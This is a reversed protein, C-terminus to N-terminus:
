DFVEQLKFSVTYINDILRSGTSYSQEISLPGEFRTTIIGSENIHSLDFSFSEFTGSRANYFNEIATKEVGSIATYTLNYSRKSRRSKLRRKEYGAQSMFTTVDFTRESGIGRDPKRDVMSTFRDQTEVASDFVRISLSDGSYDSGLPAGSQVSIANSSTIPAHTDTRYRAVHAMRAFSVDGNFFEGATTTNSNAGVSVNGSTATAAVYGTHAVKVNNVYLRLNNTSADYSVAVHYNSGGNANGGYLETIGGARNIVFGVNSNAGVLRLNYNNTADGHRAFLTQNSALSAGTDPRVWMDLTFSRDNVNFDDDSPISLYDDTGDLTLFKDAGYTAYSATGGVFTVTHASDSEDTLNDYFNTLLKTASNDAIDIGDNGLTVSPYTYATDQQYVGSLFVQFEATSSVSAGDPLSFAVQEGNILYSNGNVSSGVTNSYEQALTTFTSRTQRLKAPISVTQLTLNSANPADNFSVTAGSNSISYTDTAQLVGNLFAAVEGRHNVTASLNFDTSSGTSTYTITSTVPFATITTTADNPYTAM